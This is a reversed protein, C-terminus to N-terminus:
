AYKKEEEIRKLQREVKESMYTEIMDKLWYNKPQNMLYEIQKTMIMVDALERMNVTCALKKKENFYDKAPLGSECHSYGIFKFYSSAYESCEEALKITQINLGYHDAITRIGRKLEPLM